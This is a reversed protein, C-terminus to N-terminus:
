FPIDEDPSTPADLDTRATWDSWAAEGEAADLHPDDAFDHWTPEDDREPADAHFREFAAAGEVASTFHDEIRSM